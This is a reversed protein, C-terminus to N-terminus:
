SRAYWVEGHWMQRNEEDRILVDREEKYIEGEGAAHTRSEIAKGRPCMQADGEEEEPSSTYRKRRETLDLDGVRFRLKLTKAYDM